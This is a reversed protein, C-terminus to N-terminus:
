RRTHMTIALCEWFPHASVAESFTCRLFYLAMATGRLGPEVVDQVASYVTVYYVYILMWGAGMSAHVHTM